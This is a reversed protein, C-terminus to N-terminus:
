AQCINRSKRKRVFFLLLFTAAWNRFKNRDYFVDRLLFQPAVRISLFFTSELPVVTEMEEANAKLQGACSSIGTERKISVTSGLKPQQFLFLNNQHHPIRNSLDLVFPNAVCNTASSSM